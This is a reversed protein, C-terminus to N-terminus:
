VGKAAQWVRESFVEFMGFRVLPELRGKMWDTRRKRQFSGLQTLTLVGAVSAFGFAGVM